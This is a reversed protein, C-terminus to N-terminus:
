AHVPHSAERGAASASRRRAYAVTWALLGSVTGVGLMPEVVLAAGPSLLFAAAVGLMAELLCISGWVMTLRRMAHRFGPDKLRATWAAARAEDGGANFQRGVFFMLPRARGLSLLCAIGFIGFGPAAKLVAFRPDNTLLAIGIGGLITVLVAMGIFDLRRRWAWSLTISATPFISAVAVAPLIPVNWIREMLQAAIWPLAADIVLNRLLPPSFPRSPTVPPNGARETM